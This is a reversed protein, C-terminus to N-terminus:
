LYGSPSPLFPPASQQDESFGTAEKVNQELGAGGGLYRRQRM